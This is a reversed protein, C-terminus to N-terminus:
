SLRHLFYGGCHFPKSLIVMTASCKNIVDPDCQVCHLTNDAKTSVFADGDVVVLDGHRLAPTSYFRAKSKTDWIYDASILDIADIM